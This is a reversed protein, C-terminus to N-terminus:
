PTVKLLKGTLLQYHDHSSVLYHHLGMPLGELSIVDQNQIDTQMLQRGYSDFLTLVGTEFPLNEVRVFYSAPQPYFLVPSSVLTETSTFLTQNKFWFVEDDPIASVVIDKKGDLDMDKLHLWNDFVNDNQYAFSGFSSFSGLYIPDSWAGMGENIMYGVRYSTQRHIFVLDEDGDGDLDGTELSYIHLFGHMPHRTTFSLSKNELYYLSEEFDLPAGSIIDLDNDNDVDILGVGLDLVETSVPVVVRSFGGSTGQRYILFRNKDANVIIVDMKGDQNYDAVTAYDYETEQNDLLRQTFSTGANNRYEYMIPEGSYDDFEAIVDAYGDLNLDRAVRVFRFDGLNLEQRTFVQTSDLAYYAETTVLDDIGDANMDAVDRVNDIFADPLDITDFSFDGRNQFLVLNGGYLGALDIDEDGDFDGVVVADDVYQVDLNELLMTKPGFIVTQSFLPSAICFFLASILQFAQM